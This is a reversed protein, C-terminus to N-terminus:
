RVNWKKLVERAKKRIKRNWFFPLKSIIILHEQASRLGLEEILLLSEMIFRSNIVWSNGVPFLMEFAKKRSQENKALITLAEKRLYFEKNELISFMFGQDYSSLSGMEKLVEAKVINNSFSFINKLVEIAKSPDIAELNKIFKSLFDIDAGGSKLNEYINSLNEPFFRFLLKLVSGNIKGENFIKNLYYDFGLFSINLKEAIDKLEQSENEEFCEKEIFGGIAKNLEAFVGVLAADDNIKVEIAEFLLKIYELDKKEIIEASEKLLCECILVLIKEDKEGILLNLLIYCYNNKLSDRNFVIGEEVATAESLSQLAHRYFPSILEEQGLSFLEKVKKRIMPNSKISESSNIKNELGAAIKKNTDGDFLRSLVSFSLYNFNDEKLIEEWLAETLEEKKFDKFFISIKDLKQERSINKDKLVFRFLGKTCEYFKDEKKDKLHILFNYLSERLEEDAFFDNVKFKGIIETFNDAFEDIRAADTTKASEKFLYIWIDKSEEGEYGLFESYDLEEVLLHKSKVKTIINPIGGNAFIERVPLAISGLLKILEEISVGAKFEISKIKRSHFLTALEVYVLTKEFNRGDIVLSNVTINIRVPSLFDFLNDLKQKFNEVSKRFYPHSKPYASANNLVVRLGKLFDKLTEEKDIKNM